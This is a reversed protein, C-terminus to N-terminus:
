PGKKGGAPKGRPAKKLDGLKTKAVAAAESKPYDSLIAELAVRAEEPMKLSAFCDSSKLLAGPTEPAKAFNKVIEGYESLAVRWEKKDFWSNGLALHIKAALADKPWKKLFETGLDRGAPADEALKVLALEAFAKKDTPREVPESRKRPPEEGKGAAVADQQDRTLAVAKELEGVRHVYEEVQGRLQALDTQMQEVQVGIDAGSRRSAKDLKELATSVEIVKGSLQQRQADIEEQHRDRDAKLARVEQELLKGRDAPYICALCLAATAAPLIRTM